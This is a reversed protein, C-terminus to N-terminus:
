APRVRLIFLVSRSIQLYRGHNQFPCGRSSEGLVEGWKHLTLWQSRRRVFMPPCLSIMHAIM